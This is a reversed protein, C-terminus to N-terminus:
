GWKALYSIGQLIFITAQMYFFVQWIRVGAYYWFGAIIDVYLFRNVFACMMMTNTPTQKLSTLENLLYMYRWLIISPTSSSTPIKFMNIVNNDCKAFVSM